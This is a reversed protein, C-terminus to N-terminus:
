RIIKGREDVGAVLRFDADNEVPHRRMERGIGMTQRLEVARRQVLIAVRQFTKM